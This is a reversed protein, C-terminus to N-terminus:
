LNDKRVRVDFGDQEVNKSADGPTVLDSLANDIAQFRDLCLHWHDDANHPGVGFLPAPNQRIGVHDRGLRELLTSLLCNRSGLAAGRRPGGNWRSCRTLYAYFSCGTSKLQSAIASSFM